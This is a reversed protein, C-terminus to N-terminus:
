TERAQKRKGPMWRGPIGGVETCASFVGCIDGSGRRRHRGGPYTAPIYRANEVHLPTTVVGGDGGGRVGRLEGQNEEAGM